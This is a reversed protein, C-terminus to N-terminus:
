TKEWEFKPKKRALAATNEQWFINNKGWGLWTAIEAFLKKAKQIYQLHCRICINLDEVM